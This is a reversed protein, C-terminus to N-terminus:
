QLVLLGHHVEVTPGVSVFASPLTAERIQLRPSRMAGWHQSGRKANEKDEHVSKFVSM